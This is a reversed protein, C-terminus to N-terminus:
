VTERPVDFTPADLMEALSSWWLDRDMIGMPYNPIKLRLTDLADLLRSVEVFDAAMGDIEVTLVGSATDLATIRGQPTYHTTM